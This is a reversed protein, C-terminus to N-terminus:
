DQSTEIFYLDVVNMKLYEANHILMDINEKDFYDDFISEDFTDGLIIKLITKLTRPYFINEGEFLKRCMLDPSLIYVAYEVTRSDLSIEKYFMFDHDAISATVDIPITNYINSFEGYYSRLIYILGSRMGSAYVLTALRSLTYYHVIKRMNFVDMTTEADQNFNVSILSNYDMLRYEKFVPLTATESHTTPIFAAASSENKGLAKAKAM